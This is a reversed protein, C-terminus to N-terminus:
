APPHRRYTSGDHYARRQHCRGSKPGPHRRARQLWLHPRGCWRLVSYQGGLHKRPTDYASREPSPDPRACIKSLPPWRAEREGANTDIFRHARM